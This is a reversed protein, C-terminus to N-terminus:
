EQGLLSITEVCFALLSNEEGLGSLGRTLKTHGERFPQTVEKTGTSPCIVTPFIPVSLQGTNVQVEGGGRGGPQRLFLHRELEWLLCEKRLCYPGSASCAARQQKQQQEMKCGGVCSSGGRLKSEPQILIGTVDPWPDPAPCFVLCKVCVVNREEVSCELLFCPLKPRTKEYLCVFALPKERPAVDKPVRFGSCGPKQRGPEGSLGRRREKRGCVKSGQLSNWPESEQAARARGEGHPPMRVAADPPM